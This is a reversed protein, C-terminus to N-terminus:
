IPLRVIFATGRGVQTEFQITGGHKEVVAARTLALGQGSGQGVDKTTFFPEFIYDRINEPIGTGSDEM